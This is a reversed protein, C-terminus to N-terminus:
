DIVKGRLPPVVYLRNAPCRAASSSDKLAEKVQVEIEWTSTSVFCTDPLILTHDPERWEGEYIRSLASLKWNISGPWHRWEAMATKVALFERDGIGYNRKAPMLSKSLSACPHLRGNRSSKQSLVAAIGSDRQSEHSHAVSLRGQGQRSGHPNGGEALVFSLFSISTRHFECKEAKVYLDHRLVSQVHSINSDADNCVCLLDLHLLYQFRAEMRSHGLGRSEGDPPIDRLSDTDGSFREPRSLPTCVTRQADQVPLPAPASPSPSPAATATLPSADAPSSMSTFWSDLLASMKQLRHNTVQLAAEQKAIRRGQIQLSKYIAGSDAPDMNHSSRETVVLVDPQVWICSEQCGVLKVHSNKSIRRTAPIIKQKTEHPLIQREFSQQYVDGRDNLHQFACTGSLKELKVRNEM